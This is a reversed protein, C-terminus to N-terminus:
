NSFASSTGIMVPFSGEGLSPLSCFGPRLLVMLTVHM